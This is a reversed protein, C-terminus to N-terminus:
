LLGSTIPKTTTTTKEVPSMKRVTRDVGLFGSSSMQAKNNEM